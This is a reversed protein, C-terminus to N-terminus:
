LGNEKIEEIFTKFGALTVRKLSYSFGGQTGSDETISLNGVSPFLESLETSGSYITDASMSGSVLLANLDLNKSAIESSTSASFFSNISKRGTGFTVGTPILEAM